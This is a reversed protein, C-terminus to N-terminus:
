TTTTYIVTFSLYGTNNYNEDLEATNTTLAPAFAFGGAYCMITRTVTTFITNYHVVGNLGYAAGSADATFPLGRIVNIGSGTTGITAPRLSVHVTVQRGIKTYTGQQALYSVGTPNTTGRGIVPLWTGEEYDDLLNSTPTGTGGASGFIIGLGTTVSGSISINRFQQGTYGIDHTANSIAGAANVPVIAANVGNDFDSIRLGGANAGVFYPQGTVVGISGVTGGDKRFRLLEGDSTYRALELPYAGDAKHVTQGNQYLTTGSSDGEASTHGVLVNGSADITAAQTPASANVTLPGAGTLVTGSQDPLTLTRNTSTAPSAITFVGTGAADPTLAIKSM